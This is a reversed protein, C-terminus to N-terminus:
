NLRGEGHNVMPDAPSFGPAQGPSLPRRREGRRRDAFQVARAARPVMAALVTDRKVLHHWLAAAAHAAVLALLAWALWIHYDYLTDAFESDAAVLAPLHIAGLFSLSIGHASTLAWGVLPLALLLAYLFVHMAGAAWRLLFAMNPAHNVLGKRVRVVIRWVAAFLLLLGVQRHVHLLALRYTDDEIADRVFMAGVLAVLALVTGWHMAVILLPHRNLKVVAAAHSWAYVRPIGERRDTQMRRAPVLEDMVPCEQASQM